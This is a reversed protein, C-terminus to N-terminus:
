NIEIRRSKAEDRLPLKLNLLGDELKAELKSINVDKPLRLKLAYADALRGGAILNWSKPISSNRIAEIQLGEEVATVNLLDKSVGPLAVELTYGDETKHSHWKPQLTVNQKPETNPCCSENAASDKSSCTNTHQNENKM